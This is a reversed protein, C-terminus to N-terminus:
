RQRGGTEAGPWCWGPLLAWPIPLVHPGSQSPLRPSLRRLTSSRPPVAPSVGQVEGELHEDYRILREAQVSLAELAGAGAVQEDAVLRVAELVVCCEGVPHIQPPQLPAQM